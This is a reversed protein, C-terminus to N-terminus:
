KRLLYKHLRTPIPKTPKPSSVANPKVQNKIKQKLNPQYCAWRGPELYNFLVYLNPIYTTEYTQVLEVILEGDGAITLPLRHHQLLKGKIFFQEVSVYGVKMSGPEGFLTNTGHQRNPAVDHPINDGRKMSTIILDANHHGSIQKNIENQLNRFFDREYGDDDNLVCYYEDDNLKFTNLFWNICYNSRAWFDVGENPCIYHHIWPEHFAVPTKNDEDTIVHWQIKQPRLIKILAEINQYRAMPTIVNFM